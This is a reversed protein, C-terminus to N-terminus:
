GGAAIARVLAAELADIRYPKQVVPASAFTEDVGSAGYGTSFCIAVGRSRLLEAVAFSPGEGMNVDLVAADLRESAALREADALRLAPGVAICGLEGLMDEIAMAIIPEDEVVLIRKGALPGGSGDEDRTRASVAATV